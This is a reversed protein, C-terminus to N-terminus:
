QHFQIRQFSCDFSRALAHASLRRAPAPVDEILLHGRALLTVLALEVAESKGKIVREVSDVLARIKQELGPEEAGITM